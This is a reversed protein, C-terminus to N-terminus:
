DWCHGFNSRCNHSCFWIHARTKSWDPVTGERLSRLSCTRGCSPPMNNDLQAWYLPESRGHYERGGCMMCEEDRSPVNRYLEYEERHLCLMNRVSPSTAHWYQLSHLKEQVWWREWSHITFECRYSFGFRLTHVMWEAGTAVAYGQMDHM